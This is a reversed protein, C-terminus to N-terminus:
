NKLRYLSRMNLNSLYVVLEKRDPDLIKFDAARFYPFLLRDMNRVLEEEEFNCMDFKVCDFVLM